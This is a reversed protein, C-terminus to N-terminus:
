LSSGDSFLRFFETGGSQLPYAQFGIKTSGTPHAASANRELLSARLASMGLTERQECVRVAARAHRVLERDIAILPTNCRSCRSFADATFISPIAPSSRAFSNRSFRQIRSPACRARNAAAQRSDVHHPSPVRWSCCRPAMSANTSSRTPAWCGCGDRSVAALMRDAAFKAIAEMGAKM